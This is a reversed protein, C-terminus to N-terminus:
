AYIKRNLRYWSGGNYVQTLGNSLLFSKASASRMGSECCTIITQNKVKLKSLKHPLKDLPINVSGQIHGSSFEAATRVDVILAGEVMLQAYDTSKIGFLKKLTEIM